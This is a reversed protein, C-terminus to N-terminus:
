RGISVFKLIRKYRATYEVVDIHDIDMQHPLCTGVFNIFLKCQDLQDLTKHRCVPLCLCEFCPLDSNVSAGYTM